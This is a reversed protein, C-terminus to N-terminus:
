LACGGLQSEYYQRFRQFGPDEQETFISASDEQMDLYADLNPPIASVGVIWFNDTISILKEGLAHIREQNLTYGDTFIVAIRRSEGGLYTPRKM